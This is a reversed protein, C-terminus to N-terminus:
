LGETALVDAPPAEPPGAAEDGDNDEQRQHRVQQLKTLMDLDRAISREIATQYRLIKEIEDGSPLSLRRARREVKRNFELVEQMQVLVDRELKHLNRRLKRKGEDNLTAVFAQAEDRWNDPLGGGGHAAGIKCRFVSELFRDDEEFPGDASPFTLCFTEQAQVQAETVPDGYRVRTLKPKAAHPLVNSQGAVQALLWETSGRRPTGVGETSGLAEREAARRYDDLEVRLCGTEFRLLRRLRWHQVAIREVLLREMEGVPALSAVLGGLLSEYEELNECGDGDDIVAERALIGHRLANRASIAKGEPTRPGTSLLANAQNAKVQRETAM